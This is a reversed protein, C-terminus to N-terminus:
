AAFTGEKWEIVYCRKTQQTVKYREDIRLGVVWCIQGESELIWVKEKEFRSLKLDVFFDQLKKSHGKMGLPQFKDGEKWQRLTLPFKLTDLDLYAKSSNKEVEFPPSEIIQSHISSIELPLTSGTQDLYYKVGGTNEKQKIVLFERDILLCNDTSYFVKGPQNEISQMIQEIQQNNFGYPHITEFLITKPAPSSSLKSISIKLQNDQRILLDKKIFDIAFDFLEEAENLRQITNNSTIEFNPNLEKLVPVVHHRIKNRSYKDTSNSVDERFVIKEENAFKIIEDKTVGLLPRIIKDRKPLIGHLGRIGCGKTFNYLVTEISDNLHHATAIYQYDHEHRIKELWDYRLDRAVEQISQKKQEAIKDTFFSISYFPVNLQKAVQKVFAEDEESDKGRLKFNCHALGFSVALKSLIHCLVISDIGGSVAILIRDGETFLQHEQVYQQITQLIM